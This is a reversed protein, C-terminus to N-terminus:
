SCQFEIIIITLRKSSEPICVAQQSIRVMPESIWSESISTYKVKYLMQYIAKQSVLVQLVLLFLFSLFLFFTCLCTILYTQVETGPLTSKLKSGCGMLAKVFEAVRSFYRLSWMTTPIVFGSLHTPKWGLRAKSLLVAKISTELLLEHTFFFFIM